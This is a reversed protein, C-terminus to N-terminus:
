KLHVRAAARTRKRGLLHRWPWAPHYVSPPSSSRPSAPILGSREKVAFFFSQQHCHSARFSAEARLLSKWTNGGQTDPDKNEATSQVPAPFSVGWFHVEEEEIFQGRTTAIAVAFRAYHATYVLNIGLALAPCGPLSPLFKIHRSLPEPSSLSISCFMGGGGKRGLGGGRGEERRGEGRM